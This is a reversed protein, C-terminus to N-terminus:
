MLASVCAKRLCTVGSSCPSIGKRSSMKQRLYDKERRLGELGELWGEIAKGGAPNNLLAPYVLSV